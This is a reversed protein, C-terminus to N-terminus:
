GLGILDPGHFAETAMGTAIVPVPRGDARLLRLACELAPYNKNRHAGHPSLLFREPLAFRRRM